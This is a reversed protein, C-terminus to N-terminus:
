IKEGIFKIESKTLYMSFYENGVDSMLRRDCKECMFDLYSEGNDVHINFGYRVEPIKCGCWPLELDWPIDKVPDKTFSKKLIKLKDKKNMSYFPSLIFKHRYRSRLRDIIKM